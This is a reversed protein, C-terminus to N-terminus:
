KIKQLAQVSAPNDSHFCITDIKFPNPHTFGHYQKVILDINDLLAGKENRPIINIGNYARDAFVEHLFKINEHQFYAENGAPVVLSLNKDITAIVKYIIHLVESQYIMDHYLAGHPKVYKLNAGNETCLKKLRTIQSYVLDFLKGSTLQHSLRGFNAKDAYSPHAGIATKNEMALNITEIMSKDNGAHGGCAINAIDILPMVTADPNPTLCEGLDCSILKKGM